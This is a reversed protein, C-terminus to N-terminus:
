AGRRRDEMRRDEESMYRYFIKELLVSFIMTMVGPLLAILLPIWLLLRLGAGLVALVLFSVPLHRLSILLSNKLIIGTKQSFRATYAIAYVFVASLLALVILLLCRFATAAAPYTGDASHLGQMLYFDALIVATTGAYLLWLVTAQRFNSRFSGTFEQLVYGRFGRVTKTMTYYAACSAAGVTVLPVSFLLWLLGVYIMEMIQTLRLMFGSEPQFIGAM